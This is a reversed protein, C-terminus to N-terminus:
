AVREVCVLYRVDGIQAAAIATFLGTIFEMGEMSTPRRSRTAVLRQIGVCEDLPHEEYLRGGVDLKSIRDNLSGPHPKAM